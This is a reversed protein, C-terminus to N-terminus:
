RTQATYAGSDTKKGDKDVTVVHSSGTGLAAEM